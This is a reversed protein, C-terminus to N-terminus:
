FHSATGTHGSLQEWYEKVWVYFFFSSITIFFIITCKYVSAELQSSSQAFRDFALPATPVQIWGGGGEGGGKKGGKGISISM